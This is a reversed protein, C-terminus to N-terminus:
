KAAQNRGGGQKASVTRKVVTKANANTTTGMSKHVCKPKTAKLIKM